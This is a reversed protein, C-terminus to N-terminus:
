NDEVFKENGIFGLPLNALFATNLICGFADLDQNQSKSM